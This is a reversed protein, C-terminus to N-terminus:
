VQNNILLEGVSLEFKVPKEGLRKDVMNADLITGFLFFEEM